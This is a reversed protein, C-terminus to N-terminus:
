LLPRVVKIGALLGLLIKKNREIVHERYHVARAQVATFNVEGWNGLLELVSKSYTLTGEFGYIDNVFQPLALLKNYNYANFMMSTIKTTAHPSDEHIPCWFADARDLVALMHETSIGLHTEVKARHIEFIRALEPHIARAVFILETHPQALFRAIEAFDRSPPDVWGTMAMTVKPTAATPLSTISWAHDVLPFFYPMSVLPSLGVHMSLHTRRWMREHDVCILKGKQDQKILWADPLHDDCTVLIMKDFDELFIDECPRVEVDGCQPLHTMPDHDNYVQFPLGLDRCTQILGGIVDSHMPMKQFIAIMIEGIRPGVFISRVAALPM